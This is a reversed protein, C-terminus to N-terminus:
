HGCLFANKKLVVLICNIFKMNPISMPPCYITLGDVSRAKLCDSARKECSSSATLLDELEAMARECSPHPALGVGNEILCRIVDLSIVQESTLGIRVDDLWKAQKM